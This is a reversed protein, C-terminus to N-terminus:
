AAVAAILSFAMCEGTLIPTRYASYVYSCTPGTLDVTEAEWANDPSAPLKAQVNALSPCSQRAEAGNVYVSIPMPEGSLVPTVQLLRVACLHQDFCPCPHCFIPLTKPM